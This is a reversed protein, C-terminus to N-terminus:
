QTLSSPTGMTLSPTATVRKLSGVLLKSFDEVLAKKLENLLNLLGAERAVEFFTENVEKFAVYVKKLESPAMDKAQELSLTTAKGLNRSVFKGFDGLSKQDSPDSQEENILDIIQRVTLEHVTVSVVQGGPGEVDIVKHLRSM